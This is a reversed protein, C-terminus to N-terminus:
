QSRDHHAPKYFRNAPHTPDAIIEQLYSEKIRFTCDGNSCKLYNLRGDSSPYLDRSCVPCRDDKINQWKMRTINDRRPFGRHEVISNFRKEDIHFLCESCRIEIDKTLAKDCYPCLMRKLNEWNM